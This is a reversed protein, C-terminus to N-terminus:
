CRIAEIREAYSIWYRAWLNDLDDRLEAFQGYSIVDNTFLRVEFKNIPLSNGTLDAQPSFGLSDVATYTNGGIVCKM